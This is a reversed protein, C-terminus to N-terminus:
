NQDSQEVNELVDFKNTTPITEPSRKTRIKPVPLSSVKESNEKSKKSDRRTKRKAAEDHAPCNDMVMEGDCGYDCEELYEGIKRQSTKKRVYRQSKPQLDVESSARKRSRSRSASTSTSAASENRIRVIPDNASSRRSRHSGAGTSQNEVLHAFSSNAALKALKSPTCLQQNVGVQKDVDNNLNDNTVTIVPKARPAQGVQARGPTVDVIDDDDDSALDLWSSVAAGKSVPSLGKLVPPRDEAPADKKPAPNLFNTLGTMIAGAGKMVNEAIEAVESKKSVM